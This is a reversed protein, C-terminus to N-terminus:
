GVADTLFRESTKLNELLIDIEEKENYLFFSARATSGVGLKGMLPQACHHGARIAINAFDLMSGVDHSHIEKYNFAFVAGRREPSQPGYLTIGETSLMRELVYETISDEHKILETWGVGNLYEIAAALGIAGAMNPTGAEFKWPLENPTFGDYRVTEIMDGGGLYAPLQEGLEKKMYLVGIGTPGCMKHGSFALFDCQVKSVDFGYHPVRQAGDILVPVGRAHAVQVVQEVDTVCGLVNSMGSVAVLKTKPSIKQELDSIDLHWAPTSKAFVLRVGTREALMLWPVLNSHHEFESLIIEDGAQMKAEGFCRAVLNISDTTGRTFIIEEPSAAKVFDAVTQRAGEYKETAKASLEYIGRRVTGYERAYFDAEAAIVSAPKHSTAASDLYILPKGDRIANQFIPFDAKIKKIDLSM